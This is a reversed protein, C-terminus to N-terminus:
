QGRTVRTDGGTASHLFNAGVLSTRIEVADGSKVQFTGRTEAQQWVQGNDLTIIWRGDARRATNSVTAVITKDTSVSPATPQKAEPKPSPGGAPPPHAPEERTSLRAIERDYCSLRKGDDAIQACARLPEPVALADASASHFSCVAWAGVSVAGVVLLRITSM